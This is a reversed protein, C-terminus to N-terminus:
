FSVDPTFKDVLWKIIFVFPAGIVSFVLGITAANITAGEAGGSTNVLNYIHLAVTMNKGESGSPLLLMPQTMFGFMGMVGTLIFTTVTPMVLPLVISFCERWFGLGDLRGSEIVERPIRLMAGSILIVNSGLGAWVCFIWVLPWAYPEETNFWGPAWDFYKEFFMSVPGFDPHFMYKYEMTLIVISIMSPFFFLVRFLREGPVKKFFAYSSFFALPLIVILNLGVSKISNIMANFLGPDEGLVMKNFFDVFRTFGYWEYEGTLVNYNQFTLVITRFNVYVWFVLFNAVPLALLSIIFGTQKLKYHRMSHARERKVEEESLAVTAGQASGGAAPEEMKRNEKM